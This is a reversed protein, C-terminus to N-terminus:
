NRSRNEREKEREEYNRIEKRQMVIKNSLKQNHRVLAYGQQVANKATEKQSKVKRELALIGKENRRQETEYMQIKELLVSIESRLYDCEKQMKKRAAIEMSAKKKNDACENLIMDKEKEISAIKASLQAAEERTKTLDEKMKLVDVYKMGNLQNNLSSSMEEYRGIEEKLKSNEETIRVLASEAESITGSTQKLLDKLDNNEKIVKSREDAANAVKEMISDYPYSHHMSSTLWWWNRQDSVYFQQTGILLRWRNILITTTILPKLTAPKGSLTEELEDLEKCMVGFAKTLASSASRTQSLSKIQTILKENKSEHDEIVKQLHVGKLRESEIDRSLGTISEQNKRIINAAKKLRGTADTLDLQLQTKQGILDKISQSYESITKSPPLLKTLESLNNNSESLKAGLEHMQKEQEGVKAKLTEINSELSKNKATLENNENTASDNLSRIRVIESSLIKLQKSMKENETKLKENSEELMDSKKKENQYQSDNSSSEVSLNQIINKLESIQHDKVAIDAAHIKEKKQKQREIDDESQKRQEHINETLKEVRTKLETNEEELASNKEVLESNIKSLRQNQQELSSIKSNFFRREEEMKTELTEISSKLAENQTKLEGLRQNEILMQGFKEQMQDILEDKTQSNVTDSSTSFSYNSGSKHVDEPLNM